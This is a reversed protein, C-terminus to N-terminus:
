FSVKLGLASIVPLVVSNWLAKLVIQFIEDSSILIELEQEKRSIGSLLVSMKGTVEEIFLSSLTKKKAAEQTLTVLKHLEASPLNPLPIHCITSSTMILSYSSEESPILIVVPSESAAAQLSSLHQPCLFNEFGELSRVQKILNSWEKHLSSLHITKQELTLRQHHDLIPFQTDDYFEHELEKAVVELHHGLEPAASKLQAVPSRLSLIQSWFITRGSELFEVAKEIDGKKIACIAAEQALGNSELILRKHQSQVGSAFVVLQPLVELAINYADLISSHKYINAYHVWAKAITLRLSPPQSFCQTAAYFSLMAQNLYDDSYDKAQHQHALIYAKAIAFLSTSRGPHLLSQLETSQKYLFIAEDLDSRIGNKEFRTLLTSALNSLSSSRSPHSLLQLEM